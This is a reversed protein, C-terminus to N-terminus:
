DEQFPRNAKWRKACPNTTACCQIKRECTHPFHEYIWCQLLSLYGALQRTDPRSAADLATYLMTLTVVGVLHLMYARAAAEYRGVDALEQYIKRLWSMRLHFGRTEGFEKLVVVEDIEFAGMVMHVVTAQDKHVPTFFMSAIPLHFLSHVNDLTVTLEGFPLHFSSTEPHWREVFPTLLSADLMTPSYGAFNMLHFDRVIRRVQEPMPREPFNKLKSGHSAVNLVPREGEEVVAVPEEVRPVSEEAVPVPEGVVPVPEEVEAVEVQVVQEEAAAASVRGTRRRPARFGMAAQQEVMRTRNSGTLLICEARLESVQVEDAARALAAVRYTTRVVVNGDRGRTRM